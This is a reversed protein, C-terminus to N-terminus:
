ARGSTHRDNGGTWCSGGGKRGEGIPQALGATSLALASAPGAIGLRPSACSGETTLERFNNIALRPHRFEDDVKTTEVRLM